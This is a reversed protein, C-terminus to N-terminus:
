PVTPLPKGGNRMWEVLDDWSAAPLAAVALRQKQREIKEKAKDNEARYKGMKYLCVGAVLLGIGGVFIGANM